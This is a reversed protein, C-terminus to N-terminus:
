VYDTSSDPVATKSEFNSTPDTTWKSSTLIFIYMAIVNCADVFIFNAVAIALPSDSNTIDDGSTVIVTDTIVAVLATVYFVVAPTKVYNFAQSLSGLFITLLIAGIGVYAWNCHYLFNILQSFLILDNSISGRGRGYLLTNINAAAGSVKTEAVISIIITVLAYVCSLIVLVKAAKVHTEIGSSKLKRAWSPFISIFSLWVLAHYISNLTILGTGNNTKIGFFIIPSITGILSALIIIFNQMKRNALDRLKFIAYMFLIGNFGASMFALVSFINEPEPRGRFILANATIGLNDM